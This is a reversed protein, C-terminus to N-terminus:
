RPVDVITVLSLNNQLINWTSPSIGLFEGVFDVKVFSLREMRCKMLRLLIGGKVTSISERKSDTWSKVRWERASALVM